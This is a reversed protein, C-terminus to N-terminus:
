LGYRPQSSVEVPIGPAATRLATEFADPHDPTVFPQIHRGLDLVFGVAKGPRRTDLNAWYRLTTSGWLRARGGLITLPVRQVARITNLEIHKPAAWPFYYCRITLKTADIRLRCDEYHAVTMGTVKGHPVGIPACHAGVM